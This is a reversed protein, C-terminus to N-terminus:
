EVLRREVDAKQALEVVARQVSVTYAIVKALEADVKGEMTDHILGSLFVALAAPNDLRRRKGELSRLRGAARGGRVRDAQVAAAYEPSHVRCTARGPLAFARCPGGHKASDTCAPQSM